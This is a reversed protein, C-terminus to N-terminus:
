WFKWWPRRAQELEKKWAESLQKMQEEADAKLKADQEMLAQEQQAELEKIQVESKRIQEEREKIAQEKESQLIQKEKELATILAEQQELKETIETIPGPLAKLSERFEQNEIVITELREKLFQNETQLKGAIYMAQEELPKMIQTQKTEFLEEIVEKMQTRFFENSNKLIEEFTKSNNKSSRRVEELPMGYINIIESKLVKKVKKSNELVEITNLSNRQITKYITSIHKQYLDAVEQISIYKGNDSM